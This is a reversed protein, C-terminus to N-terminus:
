MFKDVTSVPPQEQALYDLALSRMIADLVGVAEAIVPHGTVPVSGFPETCQGVLAEVLESMPVNYQLMLSVLKATSSCWAQVSTGTK